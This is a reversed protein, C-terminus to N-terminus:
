HKGGALYSLLDYKTTEKSASIRSVSSSKFRGSKPLPRNQEMQADLWDESKSKGRGTRSGCGDQVSQSVYQGERWEAPGKDRFSLQSYPPPLDAEQVCASDRVSVRYSANDQEENINNHELWHKLGPNSLHFRSPCSEIFTYTVMIDNIPGICTLLTTEPQQHQYQHQMTCCPNINYRRNDTYNYNYNYHYGSNTTGDHSYRTHGDCSGRAATTTDSCSNKIHKDKNRKRGKSGFDIADVRGDTWSGLNTWMTGKAGKIKHRLVSPSCVVRRQSGFTCPVSLRRHKRNHHLPALAHYNLDTEHNYYASEHNTTASSHYQYM